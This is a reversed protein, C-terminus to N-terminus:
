FRHTLKEIKTFIPHLQDLGHYITKQRDHNMARAFRGIRAPSLLQEFEQYKM